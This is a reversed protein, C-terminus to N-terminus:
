SGPFSTAVVSEWSQEWAVAQQLTSKLELVRLPSHWQGVVGCGVVMTSFSALSQEIVSKRNCGGDPRKNEKFTGIGLMCNNCHIISKYHRLGFDLNRVITYFYLLVLSFYLSRRLLQKRQLVTLAHDQM